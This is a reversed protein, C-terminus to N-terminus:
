NKYRTQKKKGLFFFTTTSEISNTVGQTLVLATAKWQASPPSVPEGHTAPISVSKFETRYNPDLSLLKEAARSMSPLTLMAPRCRRLYFVLDTAQQNLVKNLIESSIQTLHSNM